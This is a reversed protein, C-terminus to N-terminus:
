NPSVALSSVSKIKEEQISFLQGQYHKRAAKVVKNLEERNLCALQWYEWGDSAVHVPKIFLYQPNYFTTIETITQRTKPHVAHILVFDKHAEVSEIRHDRELGRVFKKKNQETGVIIGGVVLHIKEAKEYNTYPLAHFEINYKVCLPSYIDRDDRLKFTAVWM